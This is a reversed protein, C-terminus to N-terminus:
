VSPACVTGRPRPQFNKPKVFMVVGSHVNLQSMNATHVIQLTYPHEPRKDPEKVCNCEHLTDSSCNIYVYLPKCSRHTYRGGDLLDLEAQEAQIGGVCKAPQSEQM